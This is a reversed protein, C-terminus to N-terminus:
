DLMRRYDQFEAKKCIKIEIHISCYSNGIDMPLEYQEMWM